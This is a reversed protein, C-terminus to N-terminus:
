GEIEIAEVPCAHICVGCGNCLTQNIDVHEDKFVLAPCEFHKICSQCGTCSESVTVTVKKQEKVNMICAHRAIVVAVGGEPARTFADADKLVSIFGEVDYPDAVKLFTVGCGEIIKELSISKGSSGDPLVGTAATPQNGTMATTSNDLIVV